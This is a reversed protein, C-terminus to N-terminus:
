TIGCSMPLHVMKRRQRSRNIFRPSDKPELRRMSSWWQYMRKIPGQTHTIVKSFILNQGASLFSEQFLFRGNRLQLYASSLRHYDFRRNTIFVWVCLSLFGNGSQTVQRCSGEPAEQNRQHQLQASWSHLRVRPLVRAPTRRQCDPPLLFPSFTSSCLPELM